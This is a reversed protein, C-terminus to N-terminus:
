KVKGVLEDVKGEIKELIGVGVIDDVVKKIDVM